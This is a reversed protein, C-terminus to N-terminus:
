QHFGPHQGKTEGEGWQLTSPLDSDVQHRAARPERVRRLIVLSGLYLAAALVFMVRYGALSTRGQNVAAITPGMVVGAMVGAGATVVNCLGMYRAAEDRPALDTAFAWDVSFFSGSAIGLFAGVVILAPLSQVGIFALSTTAGLVCSAAVIQKRGRHESLYGSAVSAVVSVVLGAGLLYGADASAQQDTLGLLAKLYYLLYLQSGMLGILFLLRSVLLWAFDPYRAADIAFSLLLSRLGPRKYATTRVDAVSLIVAAGSIAIVLAMSLVAWRLGGRPILVVGIVIAGVLIAVLQLGGYFASAQGRQDDPVQDPLMGQYPAQATNSFLQLVLYAGTLMWISSASSLLILAVITGLAGILIYPRRRGLRSRTGDSLAGVMPQWAAAVLTGVGGVLGLYTNKDLPLALSAVRLTVPHTLEAVLIPLVFIILPQWLYSLAFWYSSLVILGGVSHRPRPDTDLVVRLM